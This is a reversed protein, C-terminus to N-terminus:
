HNNISISIVVANLPMWDLVIIRLKFLKATTRETKKNIRYLFFICKAGKTAFLCLVHIHYAFMVSPIRYLKKETKFSCYVKKLLYLWKIKVVM